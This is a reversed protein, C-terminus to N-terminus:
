IQGESYQDPKRQLKFKESKVALELISLKVDARWM